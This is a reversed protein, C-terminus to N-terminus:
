DKAERKFVLSYGGLEGGLSRNVRSITASSAGTEQVIDSYVRGDWLMRAVQLRQAMARLEGVTCLDLFFRRCEDATRLKLIEEFLENLQGDHLKGNM